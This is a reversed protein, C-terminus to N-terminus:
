QGLIQQILKYRRHITLGRHTNLLHKLKSFYGDISNTTNPIKLHPYQQYTFLYPLNVRLSRYASRIRRHTYQWHCSNPAYTREKLFHEHRKYWVALLDSFIKQTTAPLTFAIARLEKGAPLKPRSTLYRRVIAIQHFQCFQVPLDQFIALVGRKGDIVAADITFGRAELAQRARQYEDPTELRVEQWHVNKKLRPCRIVLVGYGRGFFTTDTVAVIPQPISLTVSIAAADLECKAM